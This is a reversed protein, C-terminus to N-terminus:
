PYGLCNSNAAQMCSAKSTDPYKCYPNNRDICNVEEGLCIDRGMQDVRYCRCAMNPRAPVSITCGQPTSSGFGGDCLCEISKPDPLSM